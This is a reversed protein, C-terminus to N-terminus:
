LMWTKLYRLLIKDYQFPVWSRFLIMTENLLQQDSKVSGSLGYIHLIEKYKWHMCINNCRGTMNIIVLENFGTVSVYVSIFALNPLMREHKYEQCVVLLFWLNSENELKPNTLSNQLCRYCGCWSNTVM